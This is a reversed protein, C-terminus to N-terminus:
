SQSSAEQESTVTVTLWTASPRPGFGRGVHTGVRHLPVGFRQSKDLDTDLIGCVRFTDVESGLIV